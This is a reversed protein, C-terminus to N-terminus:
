LREDLPHCYIIKVKKHDDYILTQKTDLMSTQNSIYEKWRKLRSSSKLYKMHSSLSMLPLHHWLGTILFETLM